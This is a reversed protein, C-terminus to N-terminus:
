SWKNYVNWGQHGGQSMGWQLKVEITTSMDDKIVVIHREGNYNLKM